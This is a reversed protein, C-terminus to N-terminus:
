FLGKLIGCFWFCRYPPRLDVKKIFYVGGFTPIRIWFEIKFNEFFVGQLELFVGGSLVQIGTYVWIYGCMCMYVSVNGYIGMYIWVYWYMSLIFMISQVLKNLRKWLCRLSQFGDMIPWKILPYIALYNTSKIETIYYLVTICCPM